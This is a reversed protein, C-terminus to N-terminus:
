CAIISPCAWPEPPAEQGTTLVQLAVLPLPADFDVGAWAVGATLPDCWVVRGPQRIPESLGPASLTVEVATETPLACRLVLRMGRESVDLAYVALNPGPGPQRCEVKARSTCRQRSRRRRDAPPHNPM